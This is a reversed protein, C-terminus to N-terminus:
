QTRHIAVKNPMAESVMYICSLSHTCHTQSGQASKILSSKGSIQKRGLRHSREARRHRGTLFSSSVCLLNICLLVMCPLVMCLLVITTKM